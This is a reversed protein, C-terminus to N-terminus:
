YNREIRGYLHHEGSSYTYENLNVGARNKKIEIRTTTPYKLHKGSRRILDPDTDGYDYDSM